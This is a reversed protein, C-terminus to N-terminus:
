LAESIVDLSADDLDEVRAKGKSLRWSINFLLFTALMFMFSIGVAGLTTFWFLPLKISGCAVGTKSANHALELLCFFFAPILLFMCLIIQVGPHLRFILGASLIICSLFVTIHTIEPFFAEFAEGFTLLLQQPPANSTKKSQFNEFPATITKMESFLYSGCLGLLAMHYKPPISLLSDRIYCMYAKRYSPHLFGIERNGTCDEATNQTSDIMLSESIESQNIDVLHDPDIHVTPTFEGRDFTGSASNPLHMRGYEIECPPYVTHEGVVSRQNLTASAEDELERLEDMSLYLDTRETREFNVRSWMGRVTMRMMSYWGIRETELACDIRHSLSRLREIRELDHQIRMGRAADRSLNAIKMELLEYVIKERLSKLRIEREKQFILHEIKMQM